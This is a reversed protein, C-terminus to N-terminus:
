RNEKRSDCDRGNKRRSRDVLRSANGDEVVTTMCAKDELLRTPGDDQIGIAVPFPERKSPGARPFRASGDQPWTLGREALLMQWSGERRLGQDFLDADQHRIDDNQM